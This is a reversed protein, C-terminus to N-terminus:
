QPLFGAQMLTIQLQVETAKVTWLFKLPVLPWLFELTISNTQM